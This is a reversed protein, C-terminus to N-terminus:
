VGRATSVSYHERSRTIRERLATAVRGDDWDPHTSRIGAEALAYGLAVLCRQLRVREEGSMRRLRELVRPDNPHASMGIGDYRSAERAALLSVRGM